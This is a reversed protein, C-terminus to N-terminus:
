TEHSKGVDFWTKYRKFCTKYVNKYIQLYVIVNQM